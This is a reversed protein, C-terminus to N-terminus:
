IPLVQRSALAGTLPSWRISGGQFNNARSGDPLQKEDTVPYGLWGREWGLSAWLTRIGGHVEHAGLKETWYISGGEFHNFRGVADPTGLEDTLPLRLFGQEYGLSGYMTLIAGHVERAGRGPTWYILGNAFPRWRGLNYPAPTQAEPATANGLWGSPGGFQQWRDDISAVPGAPSGVELQVAYGIAADQFTGSDGTGFAVTYKGLMVSALPIDFRYEYQFDGRTFRSEHLDLITGTDPLVRGFSAKINDGTWAHFFIQARSAPVLLGPVGGGQSVSLSLTKTDGVDGTVTKYLKTLDGEIAGWGGSFFDKVASILEGLLDTWGFSADAIPGVVSPQLVEGGDGWFAVTVQAKM